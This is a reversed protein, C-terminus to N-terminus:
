KKAYEGMEGMMDVVEWVFKDPHELMMANAPPAYM